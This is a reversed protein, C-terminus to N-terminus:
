LPFHSIFNLDLLKEVKCPVQHFVLVAILLRTLRKTNDISDTGPHFLCWRQLTQGEKNWIGGKKGLLRAVKPLTSWKATDM